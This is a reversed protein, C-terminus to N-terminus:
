AYGTNGDNDHKNQETRKKLPNMNKPPTPISKRDEDTFTRDLILRIYKDKDWSTINKEDRGEILKLVVRFSLIYYIHFLNWLQEGLFPRYKEVNNFITSAEDSLSDPSLSNLGSMLIKKNYSPNYENEFLSDFFLAPFDSLDRLKLTNAWLIEVAEIRKSQSLKHISSYSNLVATFTSHERTFEARLLELKEEQERNWKIKLKNAIIEALFRGFFKVIVVVLCVTLAVWGSLCVIIDSVEMIILYSQM